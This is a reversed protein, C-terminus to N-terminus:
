KSGRIYCPAIIGFEIVGYTEIYIEDEDFQLYYNMENTIFEPGFSGTSDVPIVMDRIILGDASLSDKTVEVEIMTSFTFDATNSKECNYLGIFADRFDGVPATPVLVEPDDKGCSIIICSFLIPLLFYFITKM